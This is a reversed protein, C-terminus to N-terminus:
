VQQVKSLSNNNDSESSRLLHFLFAALSTHSAALLTQKAALLATEAILFGAVQAPEM